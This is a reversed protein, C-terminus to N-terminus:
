QETSNEILVIFKLAKEAFERIVSSRSSDKCDDLIVMEVDRLAAGIEEKKVSFYKYSVM